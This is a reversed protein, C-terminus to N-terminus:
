QILASYISGRRYISPVSSLKRVTMYGAKEFIKKLSEFSVPFPVWRNAEDTDYEVMIWVGNKNLMRSINRVFLIKDKVFHISNAMLIGDITTFPLPSEVFDMQVNEIQVGNMSEIHPKHKDIAYITSGNSLRSALARTFLGAGCGLDAWKKHTALDLGTEILALADSLKM